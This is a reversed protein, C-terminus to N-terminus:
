KKPSNKVLQEYFELYERASRDWSWDQSMGTRVLQEWLPRNFRSAQIAKEICINLERVSDLQFSFGNATGDAITEENADVVTDALGGTERVIPVTGYLHSYMQNLGCPEYRSPMLFIDAGAEIKHALENSFELRVVVNYPYREALEKLRIEVTPDGTGLFCFQLHEKELWEPIADAILDIGKQFAIRGVVGFLPVFPDVPLGLEQQLAAKCVPKKEFVTESDYQAAIVPDTAPNWQVTDVGNLIGRLSDDRFRLVGELGCGYQQTQIEKAYRRSVTTLGDAFTIGTKQFNLKGYFEMKEFTFHEWDIGTLPMDWHWFIGQYALNHITHISAIRDYRPIGKYLLKLYAPILGTQWDNSHLIDIELDLKEILEMVARSFFVFRECNDPYDEGRYSYLGDRDFFMDEKILYVKLDSDPLRSELVQALAVQNGLPIELSIGLDAIPIGSALASRYAPIVLYLTHGANALARPLAASVDALGGTKAFPCAESSAFLIEM